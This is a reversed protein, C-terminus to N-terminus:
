IMASEIMKLWEWGLSFPFSSDSSSCACPETGDAAMDRCPEAADMAGSEWLPNKNWKKDQILM